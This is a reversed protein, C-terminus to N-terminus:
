IAEEDGWKNMELNWGDQFLVVAPHDDEMGNQHTGKGIHTVPPMYESMGDTTDMVVHMGAEAVQKLADHLARYAKEQEANM